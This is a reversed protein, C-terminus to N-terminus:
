TLLGNICYNVNTAINIIVHTFVANVYTFINYKYSKKVKSDKGSQNGAKLTNLMSEVAKLVGHQSSSDNDASVKKDKIVISEVNKESFAGGINQSTSSNKLLMDENEIGQM